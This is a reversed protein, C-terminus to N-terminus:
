PKFTAIWGGQYTPGSFSGVIAIRGDPAGAIDLPIAGFEEFFDATNVVRGHYTWVQSHDSHYRNVTWDRAFFPSDDAQYVWAVDSGAACIGTPAYDPDNLLDVSQGFADTHSHGSALQASGPDPDSGPGPDSGSGPDPREPSQCAALVFLPYFFWHGCRM